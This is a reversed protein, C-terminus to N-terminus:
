QEIRGLEGCYAYRGVTRRTTLLPYIFGAMGRYKKASMAM